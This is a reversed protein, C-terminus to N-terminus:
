FGLGPLNPLDPIEDPLDPLDPLDDPLDPLDDPLDDLDPLEDPIEIVDGDSISDPIDPMTPVLVAQHTVAGCCSLTFPGDPITYPEFTGVGLSEPVTLTIDYSVGVRPLSSFTAVGNADTQVTSTWATNSVAMWTVEVGATPSLGTYGAVVTTEVSLSRKERCELTIQETRAGCDLYVSRSGGQYTDSEWALVVQGAELDIWCVAGTTTLTGTYTNGGTYMLLTMDTPIVGCPDVVTVCLSRSSHCQLTADLTVEGCLPVLISDTTSGYKSGLPPTISVTYTGELAGHITYNGDDDTTTYVEPTTDLSVIVGSLGEGSDSKVTGSLSHSCDVAICAETVGCVLPLVRSYVTDAFTFTAKVSSLPYTSADPLLSLGSDTTTGLLTSPDYADYFSVEIGEILTPRSVSCDESVSVAVSQETCPVELSLTKTNCCPLTYTEPDTYQLFGDVGRVRLNAEKGLADSPISFYVAGWHNTAGTVTQEGDLTTYTVLAGSALSPYPFATSVVVEFVSQESCGLTVTVSNSSCGIETSVVTPAQGMATVSVRVTAGSLVGSLTFCTEGNEDSLSTQTSQGNRVSVSAGETPEGCANLATVCLSTDCTPLPVGDVTALLTDATVFGCTPVDVVEQKQVYGDKQYEVRLTSYDGAYSTIDLRYFGSESTVTSAISELSGPAYVSVTLDSITESSRYEAVTGSLVFLQCEQTQLYYPGCAGGCPYIVAEPTLADLTSYASISCQSLDQTHCSFYTTPDEQVDPCELDPNCHVQVDQVTGDTLGPPLYGTLGSSHARFTELTSGEGGMCQPIDSDLSNESVSLTVLSSMGCLCEPLPGVIGASDLNIHRLLTNECLEEPFLTVLNNNEFSVFELNGLCGLTAPLQGALGCDKLILGTVDGVESCYVGHWNCIEPDDM